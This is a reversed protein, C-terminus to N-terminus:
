SAFDHLEDNMKIITIFNKHFLDNKTPRFNRIIRRNDFLITFIKFNFHAIYLDM